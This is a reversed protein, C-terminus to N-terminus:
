TLSITEVGSPMVAFAIFPSLCIVIAMSEVPLTVSLWIPGYRGRAMYPSIAALHTRAGTEGRRLRNRPGCGFPAKPDFRGARPRAHSTRLRRQSAALGM